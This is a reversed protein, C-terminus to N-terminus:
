IVKGALSNGTFASKVDGVMISDSTSMLSLSSASTLTGGPTPPASKSPPPSKTSRPSSNPTSRPSGQHNKFVFNYWLLNLEVM